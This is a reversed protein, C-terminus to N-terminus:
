QCEAEFISMVGDLIVAPVKCVTKLMCEETLSGSRDMVLARKIGDKGCLSWDRLHNILLMNRFQVQDILLKGAQRSFIQCQRRYNTLMDYDPVTFEFWETKVSFTTIAARLPNARAVNVIKGTDADYVVDIEVKVREDDEMFYSPEISKAMGKLVEEAQKEVVTKEAIVPTAMETTTVEPTKTEESM